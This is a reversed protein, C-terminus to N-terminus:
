LGEAAELLNLYVESMTPFPPVAHALRDVTMGGVIAVTSAHLLEAVGDGAFTAGVLKNSERDIIWQAWGDKYGEQHLRAGLTAGPAIVIRIKDALGAAEAGTRTMGVSGVTPRTFVVQPQALVDNTASVKSWPTNSGPVDAGDQQSRAIIANAAIRGHYKSSHSMPARGNVDGLAYLWGGPVAPVDLSESVAIPSGDMKVGVNELGIGSTKAKRGTAALIQTVGTVTSGDSLQVTLLGETGEERSVAQVSTSVYVRVGQSELGERVLKGAEPDIKPLLEASRSVLSVQGGLSAYVTAMETGVAGAGLVLLHKPVESSSTAQRPGWPNSEKLGPINPIVPDSGTCIAVAHKAELEAREGNEHTVAVRKVGVLEGRGRVLVAGSNEVMPILVDGDNWSSTFADRRKFVTDADLSSREGQLERVGSVAQAEALAEQPRLLAKSPVCAWFPCDGGVLQEEIIVATLGAKVIRAALVRGAWGSGICIVDFTTSKLQSLLHDQPHLSITEYSPM